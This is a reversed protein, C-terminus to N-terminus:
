MIMLLKEVHFRFGLSMEICFAKMINYGWAWMIRRQYIHAVQEPHCIDAVILRVHHKNICKADLAVENNDDMIKNIM